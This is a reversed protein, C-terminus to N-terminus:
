KHRTHRSKRRLYRKQTRSNNRKRKKHPRSGGANPEERLNQAFENEFEVLTQADNPISPNNFPDVTLRRTLRIPPNTANFTALNIKSIKEHYKDINDQQEKTFKEESTPKKVPSRSRSKPKEVPSQRRSRGIERLEKDYDIFDDPKYMCGEALVTVSNVIASAVTNMLQEIKGTTENTFFSIMSNTILDSINDIPIELPKGSKVVASLGTAIRSATKDCVKLISLGLLDAMNTVSISLGNISSSVFSKIARAGSAAATAGSTINQLRDAACQAASTLAGAPGKCYLEGILVYPAATRIIGFLKSVAAVTPESLHHVLNITGQGLLTVIGITNSTVSTVIGTGMNYMSALLIVIIEFLKGIEEKIPDKLEMTELANPISLMAMSVGATFFTGVILSIAKKIKNQFNRKETPTKLNTFYRHLNTGGVMVHRKYKKGLTKKVRHKINKKSPKHWKMVMIYYNYLIIIIHM